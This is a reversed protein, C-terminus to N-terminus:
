TLRARARESSHECTSPGPEFVRSAEHLKAAIERCHARVRSKLQTLHQTMAEASEALIGNSTGSPISSPIRASITRVRGSKITTCHFRPNISRRLGDFASLQRGPKETDLVTDGAGSQVPLGDVWPARGGISLRTPLIRMHQGTPWLRVSGDRLAGQRSKQDAQNLPM